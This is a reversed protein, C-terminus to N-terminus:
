RGPASTLRRMVAEPGDPTVPKPAGHNSKKITLALSESLARGQQAVSTIKAVSPNRYSSPDHRGLLDTITKALPGHDRGMPILTSNVGDICDESVGGADSAIVWVDRALAERVTLGFSEKWQSPFLLVDIGSFFQDITSMNYAPHFALKGPVSWDFGTRWTTANNQAADVVVFEYDSRRLSRLAKLAQMAGKNPGPGGVFGFRLKIDPPPASRRYAAGPLLVGNKNTVCREPKLGNAIGLVKFFDSPFLYLQARSLCDMLMASRRATREGDDVCSRCLKLDVSEQHCYQGDPKVMFQRECWWWADHLTVAVPIGREALLPLFSAGMSQVSHVHVVDPRFSGAIAMLAADFGANAYSEIFSLGRRPICVGIVDIGDAAYRKLGYPVVASDYFSTVVLVQWGHDRALAKAMNEAVITAGGYSLPAYHVNVIM